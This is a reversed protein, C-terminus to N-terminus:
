EELKEILRKLEEATILRMQVSMRGDEPVDVVECASELAKFLARNQMLNWPQGDAVACVYHKGPPVSLRVRGLPSVPQFSPTGHDPWSIVFHQGTDSPPAALTADIQGFKTGIVIKLPGAASPGIELDDASVEQDGRTVSKLYGPAGILSLRWRGPLISKLTFTGDRQVEVQPIGGMMPLRDLSNMRVQLNNLPTKVDGEISITGGISPAPGLAVEIPDLPTAGIEVSVKAFYSYGDGSGIAILNYSGPAMNPFRFEGSSGNVQANQRQWERRTSDKPELALQLNRDPPIPGAHGRVTVGTAPSMRFDIGSINANASAEVRSAGAPDPVGPYFQPSYSLVPMDLTAGRRIFAHPLPVKQSCRAMIYYKGVGVKSIKYEGINDSQAYGANQLTRGAETDHFQMTTVSCNPMPSGEEDVIRGRILAGPILRLSVDRKQEDAALSVSLQHGDEVGPRADPYKESQAQITYQGAPLQRFAFHGSADTVASLNVSGNLMVSAKKVPERTGADVVTGEISAQGSPPTGRPRQRSSDPVQATLSLSMIALLTASKM